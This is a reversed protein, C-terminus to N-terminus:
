KGVGGKRKNYRPPRGHLWDILVRIDVFSSVKFLRRLHALTAARDDNAGDTYSTHTKKKM